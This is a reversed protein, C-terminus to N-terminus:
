RFLWKGVRWLWSWEKQVRFYPAQQAGFQRRVREIPRIMSGTFDFCPLQLTEAAYRIAEWALLIGAGSARLKPDDGALLYYASHKDWVLYAVSHIAGSERDKAFFLARQGRQVLAADLTELFAMSIPAALEQRSYSLNHIRYFDELGASVQTFVLVEVMKQAKEIKQNRYDPALNKRLTKLDGLKLTYSYRTTQRFGKWFLPLWNTATYNFDQEFATLPPFQEWLDTIIKNEKGTNRYEPLLYPGMMRALPPMAIYVWPGKIKLFYPWVGVVRGGKEEVAAAWQGAGCVADLYWDQLFIPFDNPAIACFKRYAKQKNKM